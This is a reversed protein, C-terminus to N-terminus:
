KLNGQNYFARPMLKPTMVTLTSRSDIYHNLHAKNLPIKILPIGTKKNGHHM